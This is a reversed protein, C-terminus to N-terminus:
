DNNAGEKCKWETYLEPLYMKYEFGRMPRVYMAYMEPFANKMWENWAAEAHEICCGYVFMAGTAGNPRKFLGIMKM